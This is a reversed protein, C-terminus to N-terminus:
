EIIVPLQITFTTGEGTKTEFSIKGGIETITSHVLGLGLGTGKGPAKTTFFPDFIKNQIDETIGSGNDQVKIILFNDMTNQTEIIILKAKKQNNEIVADRANTLLNMLVQKLTEEAGRAFNMKANLYIKIDVEYEFKFIDHIFDVTELIIKHLDVKNNSCYVNENKLQSIMGKLISSIRNCAYIAKDHCRIGEENGEIYKRMRYLHGILIVLPNNIEHSVGATLLGLSALKSSIMLEKQLRAQEREALKTETIDEYVGLVGISTNQFNKLPVISIKQWCETNDLDNLVNKLELHTISTNSTLVNKDFDALKEKYKWKLQQDNKDIVEDSSKLDLDKAFLDNCGLYKLEENKWYVRVPITDLVNRLMQESEVLRNQAEMRSIIENTLNRNTEQLEQTREDVKRELNQNIQELTQQALAIESIDQGTLMFMKLPRYNYSSFYSINWLYTYYDSTKPHIRNIKGSFTINKTQQYSTHLYDLFLNWSNQDFLESLNKNILEEIDVMFIKSLFDNGKLIQGDESIIAMLLPANNFILNDQEKSAEMIKIINYTAKFDFDSM